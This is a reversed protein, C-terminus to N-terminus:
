ARGAAALDVVFTTGDPGTEALSLAGGFDKVINYSMSLGLGLGLGVPKTTFFPDFIAERAAADIGAGTDSVRLLVRGDKAQVSIEIRREERGRLADLANSVLNVIVQELRIEEAEVVVSGEPFALRVEVQEEDIRQAFLSLAGEVVAKLDVPELTSAPRRAFRKLHGILEAMRATLGQIRELSARAEESRGREMLIASNHAHSRIAALPQNLEHSIGAAMQGLAALKAAQVLDDRTQRFVALARALDGLEDDTPPPLVPMTPGSAITTAALTLGELRAVLSRRVYFWGVVIAIALSTIAIALLLNRGVVIAEASREAARRAIAETRSVEQSILAGLRTVLRRNEALLAQAEAIAALEQRKLAALGTKADSLALLRAVIQSVTVTDTWNALAKTEIDLQDAIEGIFHSTADLDEVTPVTALRGLLGVVLNAHANITLLAESKRSEERLTRRGAQAADGPGVRDIASEMNFRADEILPEVEEILDAQLWRLEESMARAREGLPFRREAVRDIAELNAEIGESVLILEPSLSDESSRTDLVARLVGLREVLTKRIADYTERREAVALDPTSAIVNAGAEALRASFALAPLHDTAVAELEESLRAYSLWGVICAGVALGGVGLFALLLRGGIGLRRRRIM